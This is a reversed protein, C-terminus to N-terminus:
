RLRWFVNLRVEFEDSRLRVIPRNWTIHLSGFRFAERAIGFVTRDGNDPDPRVFAVRGNGIVVRLFAERNAWGFTLVRDGGSQKRNTLM